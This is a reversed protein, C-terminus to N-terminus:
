DGLPLELNQGKPFARQLLRYFQEWKASARAEYMGRHVTRKVRLIDAARVGTRPSRIRWRNSCWPTERGRERYKRLALLM